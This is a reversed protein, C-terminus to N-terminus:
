RKSHIFACIIITDVLLNIGLLFSKIIMLTCYYHGTGGDFPYGGKIIVYGAVTIIALLVAIGGALQIEKM